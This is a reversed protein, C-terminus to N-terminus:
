KSILGNATLWEKAVDLAPRQKLEVEGNLTQMQADTIKGALKNLAKELEPHKKM